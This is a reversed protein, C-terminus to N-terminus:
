SIRSIPSIPSIRASRIERLRRTIWISAGTPDILAAADRQAQGTKARVEASRSGTSRHLVEHIAAAAANLDAEAWLLGEPYQGSGTTAVLRYPVLWSNISNMFDLNGSYATAIVPVGLAMAELLTLGYGESRHLSVYACLSNMFTHQEDNSFTCNVIVIDPRDQCSDLMRKHETGFETSNLTKIVLSQQSAVPNPVALCYARVVAEPNKREISSAYDFAFGILNGSAPLGLSVRQEPTIESRTTTVIGVRLDAGLAISHVPIHSPAARAIADRAFASYTWVEDVFDFGAQQEPPFVELEWGWLGIRYRGDLAESGLARSLRPTESGNVCLAIVDLQPISTGGADTDVFPVRLPATTHDYTRRHVREGAGEFLHALRRGAAGVGLVARHYGVCTVGPDLPPPNLPTPEALPAPEAPILEPPVGAEVSGFHHVWRLFETRAHPDLFIGPFEEQLDPRERWLQTLYRGLAYADLSGSARAWAMLRDHDDISPVSEGLAAAHEHLQRLREDM